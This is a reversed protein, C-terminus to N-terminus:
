WPPGGNGLATSARCATPRRRANVCDRSGGRFHAADRPCPDQVAHGEIVSRSKTERGKKAKRRTAQPPDEVAPRKPSQSAPAHGPGPEPPLEPVSGPLSPPVRSEPPDEVDLPPDEVDLPPDEVDLPPDEVDLLPEELPLLPAGHSRSTSHGFPIQLQFVFWHPAGAGFPEGHMRSSSHADFSHLQFSSLQWLTPAAPV